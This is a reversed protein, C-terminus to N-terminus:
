QNDKDLRASDQRTPIAAQRDSKSPQRDAKGPQKGSKGLRKDAKGFTFLESLKNIKKRWVFGGGYESIRDELLDQAEKNYFLRVYRMATQDLRYELSVNDIFMEDQTGGTTNNAGSLKGGIVINVRNNWLRKAFKFSYDTYSNGTGDSNKDLGVSLDITQMASNAINNIESQLFSNLANNMSVGGTNGESLYMGTTLMSVALKGRQEVSMAALENKMSLDEPADLTFELGMDQLTKTVKVGCDFKVSRSAGGDRSVLSKVQESAIINLTPNTMDGNFEVYSGQGISFTKLPIVPLAYKMQGENITYRGYLQLGDMDSYNMRLEGGGEVNVYNSENSNLACNIRAGSEINVMLQMDLGGLAPRATEAQLTSDRFDTFTVLGKLQDDTNLPSDKLIYTLSTSGLVDLRGRMQLNNVAGSINGLFNVYAKGYAVSKPSKKADILLYDRARMRLSMKMDSLDTFDIKGYMNLPNDNHAYMTFNELLLNNGVIRVPDNDIRMRLGYPVSTLFASDLYLEGNIKPASVAGKVALNGDTFGSLGFLQDPIFGNIISLPMRTLEATADITGGNNGYYTGKVVGVDNDNQSMRAEVTHSISDKQLYVLECGLDGIPCTEYTMNGVQLDSLVSIRGKKAQLLRFDGNLLGTIRPAYPIVSTIKALDFKYLSVTIDQLLDADHDESSVKVGTGEDSVLDIKAQIKRDRGFFIYNDQNLNFATYGLIPRYPSLHINIGSDVMEAKAGLSVGLQDDADLYRLSLGAGNNMIEGDFLATFVFQPNHKNNQVKGNFHLSASDQVMSFAVTDIRIKNTKLSYVHGKGNLGDTPSTSLNMNMNDFVIGKMRLFNALPNDSGCKFNVSTTPLLAKLKTQDIIKNRYHSELERMLRQGQRMLHAYGGHAEMDLSLSGSSVRAWTTDRNTSIDMLLDKPRFTKGQATVTLNNVAGQLKHEEQLDTTMYLHSSLGITIPAAALHMAHLDINRIDSNLTAQVTKGSILADFAVVGDLLGNHSDIEAHAVGDKLVAKATLRDAKWSGYEVTALSLVLDTRSNRDTLDFGCGEASVSGSVKGISDRPMFHRVQLERIDLKAKYDMQRTDISGVAHVTGNGERVTIDASYRSGCAQANGKIGMGQPIRLSRAVSQPLMSTVFALNGTSGSFSMDANLRKTDTVNEAWGDASLSFATPLAADFGTIEMRKLNGNMSCTVSLPRNPYSQVFKQPLNGAFLMIDQKGLAAKLRLRLTGPTSSDTLNLATSVSAEIDSNPTRLTLSPLNVSTSDLRLSTMLDSITLGSQERFACHRLNLKTLPAKYLLTDLTLSIGTLSIHNYDLGKQHPEFRNDYALRGNRWEVAAVRYTEEALDAQTGTMTLRGMYANIGLTDCPLNVSVATNRVEVRAVAIKWRSKETSTDPPVTDCLAVNVQADSLLVNSIDVTEKDLDIDKASLYLRKLQGKVCASAVFGATNFKTDRLDLNDIVVKKSLLPWLKVEVVLSSVDAVTDRAQKLSSSPQLAKFGQLNLDLPFGLAIRDISIDMGTKDSAYSAAKQVAWSQVPPLYLLVALLVFLLFPVLLAM